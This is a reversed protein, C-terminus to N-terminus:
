YDLDESMLMRSEMDRLPNPMPETFLTIMEVMIKGSKDKKGHRSELGM